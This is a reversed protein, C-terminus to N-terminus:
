KTEPAAPADRNYMDVVSKWRGDGQRRWVITYRGQERMRIGDQGTFAQEYRGSTYGFEGSHAVEVRSLKRTVHYTPSTIGSLAARADKTDVPPRDPWLLLADAAFFSIYAELDRTEAAKEWAADASRLEEEAQQLHRDDWDWNFQAKTNSSETHAAFQWTGSTGTTLVDLYKQDIPVPEGGATPVYRGSAKWRRFALSGDVVLQDVHVADAEIRWSGLFRRAWERVAARGAIVPVDPVMVAGDEAFLAAYEDANRSAIAAGFRKYLDEVGKAEEREPVLKMGLQKMLDLEDYAENEEVIKGDVLRYVVTAPLRFTRGTAPVEPLDGGHVGTFVV